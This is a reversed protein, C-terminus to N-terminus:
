NNKVIFESSERLEERLGEVEKRLREVMADGYRSGRREREGEEKESLLM